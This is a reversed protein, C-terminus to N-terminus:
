AAEWPLNLLLARESPGRCRPRVDQGKQLSVHGRPVDQGKESVVDRGDDGGDDRVKTSIASPDPTRSLTRLQATRGKHGDQDSAKHRNQCSCTAPQPSKRKAELCPRLRMDRLARGKHLLVALTDHDNPLHAETNTEGQQGKADQRGRDEPADHLQGQPATPVELLLERGLHAKGAGGARGPGSCSTGGQDDGPATPPSGCKAQHPPARASAELLNAAAAVATARLIANLMPWVPRSPAAPRTRAPM